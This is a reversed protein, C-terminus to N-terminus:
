AGGDPSPWFDVDMIQEFSWPCTAPFEDHRLGTEEAAIDVAEAWAGEWWEAEQLTATLGPTERIRNAAKQRQETIDDRCSDGRRESQRQWELLNFLLWAMDLQVLFGEYLLGLDKM